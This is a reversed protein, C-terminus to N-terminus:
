VFFKIYFHYEDGTCSIYKSNSNVQITLPSGISKNFKLMYQFVVGPSMTTKFENNIEKYNPLQRGGHKKKNPSDDIKQVYIEDNQCVIQHNIVVPQEKKEEEKEVISSYHSFNEYRGHQNVLHMMSVIKKKLFEGDDEKRM